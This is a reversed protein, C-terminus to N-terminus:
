WFIISLYLILFKNITPTHSRFLSLAKFNELCKLNVGSVKCVREVQYLIQGYNYGSGAYAKNSIEGKFLIGNVEEYLYIPSDKDFSHNKELHINVVTKDKEKKHSSYSGKLVKKKGKVTQWVMLSGENVKSSKLDTLFQSLTGAPRFNEM